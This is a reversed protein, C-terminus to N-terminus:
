TEGLLPVLLEDEEAWNRMSPEREISQRLHERAEEPKGEHAEVSALALTLAPSDPREGLGDEVIRRMEDWRGEKRARSARWLYEWVSVQFPEGVKNGVALVLTQPEEARAHRKVKPDDLFVVTGAPADVEDGDLTFTARGRIVVYMEQHGTGETHEEVVTEGPEGAYANTGFARVDLEARLPKWNVGAGEMYFPEVDDLHVVKM